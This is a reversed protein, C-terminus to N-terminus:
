DLGNDPFLIPQDGSYWQKYKKMCQRFREDELFDNLWAILHPRDCQDFWQRDTSAFQRIFPAIAADAYGFTSGSLFKSNKLVAELEELFEEAALRHVLPDENEFRTSYKYKDLHNKFPGDNKAILTRTRELDNSHPDAWKHPDAKSLAWDMIELSEDIVTGDPLVLVPVTAKPSFELLCPPKNRLVVERLRVTQNSIDLALRARIAYPCRRFSYLIPGDHTPTPKPHSDPFNAGMHAEGRAEALNVQRQREAFRAKQTATTEEFCGICSVGEQYATHSRGDADVARGCAACMVHDGPTLDHDVSVRDDFVFCDGEWLSEEQPIEELYKLIGGDLHFVEKYGEALCYATAKECRIGGTCFMAIKQNTPLKEQTDIWEPFDRFGKIKPLVAGKFTGIDSEYTNRTDVLVVDPDSILANWDKPKVYTGVQRLPDMGDVGMTVIEKKIRVKMQRFPPSESWSKKLRMNKLRPDAQLWDLVKNLGEEPGAITGNIGEEALLMTGKIQASECLDRLAAQLSNLKDMPTFHYFAAVTYM